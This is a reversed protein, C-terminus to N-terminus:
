EANRAADMIDKGIIPEYKKYLPEFVKIFAERDQPTLYYFELKGSKKLNEMSKQNLETSLKIEYETAEALAEELAKKIDEPLSDWFTKNTLVVYDLRGHGSVTLYKQVEAYKQTDINNFTNEQGDVTKNQLATYVEGFPITQSGAGLLKFQEELVGGSQTRFKLGKFDEPRRLPRKSNTFHKAGNPWWALGIIGKDELSKLLKQGAPGQYFKLAAEESKFLFPIDVIQFQPNLGVLKTVSPAIFQVNNAILAELEEKDGFLQSSPYVEVKVKGGTKQEALEKFKLAAQGKPTTEAVVHSFKIVIPETKKEGEQKSGCAVLAFVLFLVLVAIFINRSFKLLLAM